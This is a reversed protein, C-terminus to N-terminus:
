REISAATASATRNGIIRMFIKDQYFGNCVTVRYLPAYRRWKTYPTMDQFSNILNTNGLLPQFCDPVPSCSEERGSVSFHCEYGSPKFESKRINGTNNVDFEAREIFVMLGQPYFGWDNSRSLMDKALLGAADVVYRPIKRQSDGERPTAVYSKERVLMAISYAVRDLKSHLSNNLSLYILGMLMILFFFFVYVFEILVSGNARRSGLTPAKNM